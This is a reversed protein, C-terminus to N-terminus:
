LPEYEKSVRNLIENPSDYVAKCAQVISDKVGVNATDKIDQYTLKSYGAIDLYNDDYMPDGNFSRALKHLVIEICEKVTDSAKAYGPSAYWIRKLQQAIKAQDPFHGYRTGRQELTSDLINTM